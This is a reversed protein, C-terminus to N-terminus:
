DGKFTENYPQYNLLKIAHNHFYDDIELVSISGAGLKYDIYAMSEIDIMQFAAIVFSASFGHAVVIINENSHNFVSKVFDIVRVALDRPSEAGECIRHDLRNGKKPPFRILKNHQDQPLGENKGFSMERLRSDLHIKADSCLIEATQRARNLGSSFVDHISPNFGLEVIKEKILKAQEVGKETLESNYWGGVLRDVSHSAESHTVLCIRKM